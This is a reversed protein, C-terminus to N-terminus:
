ASREEEAERKATGEPNEDHILLTALDNEFADVEDISLAHGRSISRTQRVRSRRMKEGLKGERGRGGEGMGDDNEEMMEDENGDFNSGIEVM